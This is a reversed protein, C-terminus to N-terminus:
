GCRMDGLYYALLNADKPHVGSPYEKAESAQLGPWPWKSSAEELGSSYESEM